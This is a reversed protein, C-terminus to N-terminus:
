ASEPFDFRIAESLNKRISLIEGLNAMQFLNHVPDQPNIIALNGGSELCFRNIVLIASLGSSDLYDVKGLDLVLFKEGKDTLGQVLPKLESGSDQDLRSGSLYIITFFGEKSTKIM